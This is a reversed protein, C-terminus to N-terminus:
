AQSPRKSARSSGFIPGKLVCRFGGYAVCPMEREFTLRRDAQCYALCEVSQKLVDLEFTLRLLTYCRAPEVHYVSESRRHALSNCFKEVQM